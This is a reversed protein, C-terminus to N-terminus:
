EKDRRARAEPSQRVGDATPNKEVYEALANRVYARARHLRMKASGESIGMVEAVERTELQEM